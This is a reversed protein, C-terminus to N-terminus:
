AHSNPDSGFTSKSRGAQFLEVNALLRANDVPLIRM